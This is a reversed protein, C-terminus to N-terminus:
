VELLLLPSSFFCSGDYKKKRCVYLQFQSNITRNFNKVIIEWRICHFLFTELQFSERAGAGKFLQAFTKTLFFGWEFVIETTTMRTPHWQWAKLTHFNEHHLFFFPLCFCCFSSSKKRRRRGETMTTLTKPTRWFKMRNNRTSDNEARRFLKAEGCKWSCVCDFAFFAWSLKRCKM